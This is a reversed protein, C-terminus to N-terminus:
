DEGHIWAGNLRDASSRCLGSSFFYPQFLVSPRLYLHEAGGVYAASLLYGMGCKTIVLLQADGGVAAHAEDVHFFASWVWARM